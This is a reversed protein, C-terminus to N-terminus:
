ENEEESEIIQEVEYISLNFLEALMEVKDSEEINDNLSLYRLYVSTELSSDEIELGNENGDM